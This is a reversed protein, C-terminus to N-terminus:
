GGLSLVEWNAPELAQARGREGMRRAEEPHELLFGVAEAIQAPSDPDVLLGNEAHRVVDTVGGSRGAVIPLGSAGAELYVLGFGEITAKRSIFRSPMVFVTALNYVRPLDADAVAGIFRVRDEVGLKRALARLAAEQPGSGAVLYVLDPHAAALGPLAEIVRDVGKREVLRGVTLIPRRGALGHRRVLEPDPAAPGFRRADITHRVTRIRAPDVGAGAVLERVASSLVIVRDSGRLSRRLLPGVVPLRAIKLLDNGHVWVLRPLTRAHPCLSALVPYPFAQGCELQAFPERRHERLFARWPALAKLAAGVLPIGFLASRSRRVAFPQRADFEEAGETWPAFVTLREPAARRAREHLVREIGGHAPMFELTLLARRRM